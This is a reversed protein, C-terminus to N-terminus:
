KEFRVKISNAHATLHEAEAFKEIDTHIKELANRSYSIISSKKIFDDVSLPSFFKATGNTPLVHNPGAFYDGLPESSYEGIFIAGANRIKTMVEFPNATVIELHESAISNAADIADESSRSKPSLALEIICNALPIRAEPFGITKAAQFALVTRMCANPNALGIDEYATTILRRELSEIDGADILKAFYYLAGNPDSGRISKQLGSLTDYYQDEDKDFQMNARPVADQIINLTIHTDPAYITALELCNYAYRVDGSSMRAIYEYVEEDIEYQHNLGRESVAARKCAEVIEENNLPKVECLHCRSRIAPNISHYPNATTCGAIILLGSEIYPLLHDQKDKNLRHVEDVIVFLGESLKAETIIQDMEKKNGTSANFIRYPINLDHALAKAITTKGCGPPGYLIISMPHDKKVFQKLLRNEGVLHKQGIVDDLGIPRMSDALTKHIM